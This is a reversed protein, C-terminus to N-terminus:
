APVFKGAVALDVDVAARALAEIDCRADKKPVLGLVDPPINKRTCLLRIVPGPSAAGRGQVRASAACEQLRM